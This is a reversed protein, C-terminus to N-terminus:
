HINEDLTFARDVLLMVVRQKMNFLSALSGATTVLSTPGEAQQTHEREIGAPAEPVLQRRGRRITQTPWRRM